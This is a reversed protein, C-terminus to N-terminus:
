KAKEPVLAYSHKKPFMAELEEDTLLGEARAVMVASEDLVMVPKFLRDYLGKRHAIAEAEVEDTTTSVRAQRVFAGYGRIPSPFNIRRHQGDSGTSEGARALIDMLVKTLRSEDAVLTAKNKKVTLMQRSTKLYTDLDEPSINLAPVAQDETFDRVESATPNRPM